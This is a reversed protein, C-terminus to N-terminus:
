DLQVVHERKTRNWDRNSEPELKMIPKSGKITEPVPIQRRRCAPELTDNLRSNVCGADHQRGTASASAPGCVEAECAAAAASGSCCGGATRQGRPRESRRRPPRAQPIWSSSSTSDLAVGLSKIPAKQEVVSPM